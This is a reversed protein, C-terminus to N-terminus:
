TDKGINMSWDRTITGIHEERNEMMEILKRNKAEVEDRRKRSM